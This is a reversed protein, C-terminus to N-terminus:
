EDGQEVGEDGDEPPPWLQESREIPIGYGIFYVAAQDPTAQESFVVGIVRGTPDTIPGGSNGPHVGAGVQLNGDVVRSVIGRFTSAIV